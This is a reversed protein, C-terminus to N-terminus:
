NPRLLTEFLKVSFTKALILVRDTTRIMLLGTPAFNLVPFNRKPYYKEGILTCFTYNTIKIALKTTSDCM